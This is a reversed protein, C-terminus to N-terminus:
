FNQFNLLITWVGSVMGCISDTPATALSTRLKKIRPGSLHNLGAASIFPEIEWPSVREQRENAAHEDWEVQIFLFYICSLPVSHCPYM